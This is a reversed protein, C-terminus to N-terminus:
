HRLLFFGCLIYFFLYFNLKMKINQQEPKFYKQAYNYCNKGLSKAGTMLMVWSFLFAPNWFIPFFHSLFDNYSFLLHVMLQHTNGASFIPGFSYNFNLWKLQIEMKFTTRFKLRETNERSKLSWGNVNNETFTTLM